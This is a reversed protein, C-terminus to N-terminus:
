KIGKFLYANNDETGDNAIAYVEGNKIWINIPNTSLYTAGDLLSCIPILDPNYYRYSEDSQKIPKLAFFLHTTQPM